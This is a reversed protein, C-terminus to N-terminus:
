AWSVRPNGLAVLHDIDVNTPGVVTQNTYPDHWQGGTVTCHNASLKITNATAQAILV